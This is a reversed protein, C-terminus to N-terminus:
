TLMNKQSLGVKDFFFQGHFRSRLHLWDYLNRCFAIVTEIGLKMELHWNSVTEKISQILGFQKFYM